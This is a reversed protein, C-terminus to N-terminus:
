EDEGGGIGNENLIELIRILMWDLESYFSEGDGKERGEDDENNHKEPSLLNSLQSNGLIESEGDLEAEDV